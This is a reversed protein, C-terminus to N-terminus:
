ARREEAEEGAGAVVDARAADKGERGVRRQFAQRAAAHQVEEDDEVFIGCSAVLRLARAHASLHFVQEPAETVARGWGDAEFQVAADARAQFGTGGRGVVPHWWL